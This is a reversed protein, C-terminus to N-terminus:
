WQSRRKVGRKQAQLEAYAGQLPTQEGCQTNETSGDPHIWEVTWTIYKKRCQILRIDGLPNSTVFQRHWRTKNTTQRSMGKPAACVSVNLARLRERVNEGTGGKVSANEREAVDLRREIASLFNFDRDIGPPRPSNRGPFM